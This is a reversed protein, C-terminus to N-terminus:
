QISKKTEIFIFVIILLLLIISSILIITNGISYSNPSFTLEIINEGAELQTGRLVYNVRLIEKDIDDMEYTSHFAIGFGWFGEHIANLILNHKHDRLSFGQDTM